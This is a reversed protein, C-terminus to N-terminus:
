DGVVAMAPELIKYHPVTPVIKFTPFMGPVSGQGRAGM